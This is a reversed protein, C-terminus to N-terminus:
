QRSAAEALVKGPTKQAIIQFFPAVPLLLFRLVGIRTLRNYLLAIRRKAPSFERAEKEYISPTRVDITYQARRKFLRRLDLLSFPNVHDYLMGSRWRVYAPMWKRPLFGVGWIGVHPEASLSYRNPTTCLVKGDPRMVRRVEKLMQEPNAVHELVDFAVALSFRDDRLPLREVCGCLLPISIGREELRKRAVVLWTLSIDLGLVNKFRRSAAELFAGTGCGLEVCYVKSLDKIAQSVWGRESLEEDYKSRAQNIQRIRRTIIEPSINQRQRWVKGVLSEFTQAQYDAALSVALSRDEEYNIWADEVPTRLDPIGLLAPFVHGCGLCPCADVGMSLAGRCFPCCVLQSLNPDTM